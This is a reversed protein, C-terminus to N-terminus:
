SQCSTLWDSVVHTLESVVYNLASVVHTLESVVHKLESVVHTLESVVHNLESVVHNLESVVHNLESVVHTLESVVHTLESVVITPAQSLGFTRRSDIINLHYIVSFQQYSEQRTSCLLAACLTSVSSVKRLEPVKMVWEQIAPFPRFGCMGEFERMAIVMEPKHNPDPYKDPAEMHLKRAHEKDPHAQISLARNISLVKFLFPFEGDFDAAVKDGLAWQNDKLWDSLLM